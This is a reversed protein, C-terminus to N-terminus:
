KKGGKSKKRHSWSSKAGTMLGGLIAPVIGITFEKVMRSPDSAFAELRQALRRFRLITAILLSLFIIALLLLIGYGVALFIVLVTQIQV